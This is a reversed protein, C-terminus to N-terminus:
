IITRFIAELVNVVISNGAQKYLQSNSVGSTSAKEFATDDFGMLRWCEKPTLKRYRKNQEEIIFNSNPRYGSETKITFACGEGTTPKWGFGNGRAQMRQLHANLSNVAKNSLYYKEDVSDELMDKLRLKLTRPQPFEYYVKDALVSMMFCRARNQPIGFDKANIVQWKCYYGRCELKQVWAAFNNINKNGIVDPVNEMLLVQPLEVCEDLLREVEWLLGSRTYDGKDMGRQKGAKSLDQCPFSYTMIYCYKDTDVIELDKGTIKTIDSTSFSTGHVANYSQVAFKDVECIRYHEFDAGLNKLAKAQSGIGAFLEILRIPKDVKYQKAGDFLSIQRTMKGIKIDEM